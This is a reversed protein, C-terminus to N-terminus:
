DGIKEGTFDEYVEDLIDAFGERWKSGKIVEDRNAVYWQQVAKNAMFGLHLKYYVPDNKMRGLRWETSLRGSKLWVWKYFIQKELTSLKEIGEDNTKLLIDSLRLDTIETLQTQQNLSWSNMTLELEADKHQQRLQYLLVMAVILTATGTIIQAIVVLDM